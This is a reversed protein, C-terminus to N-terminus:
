FPYLYPSMCVTLTGPFKPVEIKLRWPVFLVIATSCMNATLATNTICRTDPACPVAVELIVAFIIPVLTHSSEPLLQSIIKNVQVRQNCKIMFKRSFTLDLSVNHTYGTLIILGPLYSLNIQNM